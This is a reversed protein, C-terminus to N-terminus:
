EKPKIIGYVTQPESFQPGEGTLLFILQGEPGDGWAIKASEFGYRQCLKAIEIELM